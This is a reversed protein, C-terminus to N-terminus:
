GEARAVLWARVPNLEIRRAAALAHAEDLPCSAFRGQWLYGHRGERFNVLRSCRRHAESLARRLADHARM